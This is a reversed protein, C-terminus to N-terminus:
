CMGARQGGKRMGGGRRRGEKSWIRDKRRGTRRKKEGGVRDEARGEGKVEKKESGQDM